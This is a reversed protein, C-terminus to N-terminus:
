QPRFRVDIEQEADPRRQERQAYEAYARRDARTLPPQMASRPWLRKVRVVDAEVAYLTIQAQLHLWGLLGLVVGFAGYLSQAHRIQHAVLLSGFALLAQWLLASVVAGPILDRTGVEAATALRFALVFVGVNILASLLLAAARVLGSVSGAGGVGSLFGTVLVAFGLSLLMGVGRLLRPLFGPRRAYAVSWVSNFANQAAGAVGLAGWLSVATATALVWWNGTLGRLRLQDGIVPFEVLASNLLRTRLAADGRLAFGLVTVFVLLLPLVSMFAYYALLAALNGAQDDGFKKAVAFPYATWPWRQQLRDARRAPGLIDM